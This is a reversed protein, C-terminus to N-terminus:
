ITEDALYVPLQLPSTYCQNVSPALSKLGEQPNAERTNIPSFDWAGINKAGKLKRNIVPYPNPM